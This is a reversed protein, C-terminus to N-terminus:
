LTSKKVIHKMHIKYYNDVYYHLSSYLGELRSHFFILLENYSHYKMKQMNKKATHTEIGVFRM